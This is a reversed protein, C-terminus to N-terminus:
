LFFLFFIFIKLRPSDFICSLIFYHGCTKQDLMLPDSKTEWMEIGIRM